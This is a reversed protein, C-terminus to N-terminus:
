GDDCKPHHQDDDSEHDDDHLSIKLGKSWVYM